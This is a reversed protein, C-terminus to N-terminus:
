ERLKLDHLIGKTEIGLIFVEDKTLQHSGDPKLSYYLVRTDIAGDMYEIRIPCCRGLNTISATLYVKSNIPINFKEFDSAKVSITSQFMVDKYRDYNEFMEEVTKPPYNAFYEDAWKSYSILVYGCARPNDRKQPAFDNITHEKYVYAPVNVLEKTIREMPNNEFSSIYLLGEKVEVNPQDPPDEDDGCSCLSFTAIVIFLLSRRYFKDM